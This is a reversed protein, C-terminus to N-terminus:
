VSQNLELYMRIKVLGMFGEEAIVDFPSVRDFDANKTSIWRYALEKNFPYARRLYKHIVLLHKIRDQTDRYTPLCQKLTKYNYISTETNPSLGLLIAQQKITLKWHEFLKMILQTQQQREEQSLVVIPLYNSKMRQHM